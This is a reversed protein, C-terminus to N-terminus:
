VGNITIGHIRNKSLKKKLMGHFFRSNEDGDCVWTVKEKQQLDIKKTHELESIKQKAERRAEIESLSLLRSEADLDWRDVQEKLQKLAGTEKQSEEKRWEKIKEKLLKLKSLFYRDPAGYGHFNIWALEFVKDFDKCNLWSNYFRFPSPGFDANFPKLLVPCHDSHERPLTTVSSNPQINIFNQCVLFRDLKSLKIGDERLYTFKRGGLHFEHLGVDSIFQNFDRKCITGCQLRWFHYM